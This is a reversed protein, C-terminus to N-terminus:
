PRWVELLDVAADVEGARYRLRERHFEPAAYRGVAGEYRYVAVNETEPDVIWYEPVGCEEYRELKITRDRDSTSPSLIEVILDPTGHVITDIKVRRNGALVVFIDPEVIDYTALEVDMPADVVEGLGRAEIQEFLQYQIRRSVTQHRYVPSPSAVHVGDLIEHRYPDDAPIALLDEYTFKLRHDVYAPM